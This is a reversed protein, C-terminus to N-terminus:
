VPCGLLVSINCTYRTAHPICFTFASATTTLDTQILLTQHCHKNCAQGENPLSDETSTACVTTHLARILLIHKVPLSQEKTPQPALEQTARHATTSVSIGLFPQLGLCQTDGCSNLSPHIHLYCMIHQIYGSQTNSKEM